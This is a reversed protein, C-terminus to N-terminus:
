AFRRSKMGPANSAAILDVFTRHHNQNVLRYPTGSLDEGQSKLLITACRNDSDLTTTTNSISLTLLHFAAAHENVAMKSVLRALPTLQFPIANHRILHNRQCYGCQYLTAVLHQFFGLASQFQQLRM